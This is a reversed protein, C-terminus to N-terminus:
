KGAPKLNVMRLRRLVGKVLNEVNASDETTIDSEFTGNGYGRTVIMRISM